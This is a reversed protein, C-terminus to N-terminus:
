FGCLAAIEAHPHSALVAAAQARAITSLLAADAAVPPAPLRPRRLSAGFSRSTVTLLLVLAAVAALLVVPTSKPTSM